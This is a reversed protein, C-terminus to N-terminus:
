ATKNPKTTYVVGPEGLKAHKACGALVIGDDALGDCVEAPSCPTHKTHHNGVCGLLGGWLALKRSANGRSGAEKVDCSPLIPLEVVSKTHGFM